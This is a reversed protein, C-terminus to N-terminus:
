LGWLKTLAAVEILTLALAGFANVTITAATHGKNRRIIQSLANLALINAAYIFPSVFPSM